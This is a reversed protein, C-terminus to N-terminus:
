ASEGRMEEDAAPLSIRFRTGKGKESTVEITGSMAHILQYSVLFGLGTGSEKTTYFANGLNATEERTMGIGTDRVEIIIRRNERGAHIILTGGAPMAEIGNKFLNVLVQSLKAPDAEVILGLETHQRVEVGRLLAYSSIIGTVHAIREGVDFSIQEEETKPRAFSLYNTIIKESRDLEEIGMRLFLQEKEKDLRGEQLLQLFGRVVTMPNRIEHALSAALEGLVQLKEARQIELRMHVKERMNEILYLALWMGFAHLLTYVAFLTLHENELIPPEQSLLIVANVFLSSLTALLVALTVKQGRTFYRFRPALWIAVAVCVPYTGLMVWFGTGGLVLRYAIMLTLILAGARRGAYLIGLLLPILRLDYLYGPSLHLPFTMCLLISVSTLVTVAARSRQPAIDRREVWFTQYIFIPILILLFNLFLDQIGTM